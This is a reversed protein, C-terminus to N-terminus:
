IVRYVDINLLMLIKEDYNIPNSILPNTIEILPTTSQSKVKKIKFLTYHQQQHM